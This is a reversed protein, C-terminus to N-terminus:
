DHTKCYDRENVLSPNNWTEFIYGADITLAPFGRLQNFINVKGLGGGVFILDVNKNIKKLDIKDYLSNDKSIKTWTINKVNNAKLSNEIKNKKDSDYSTILHVHKNLYIDKYKKNTLLIYVFYFPYYNKTNIHINNENFFIELKPLYQETYFRPKIITYIAIIGNNSIYKLSESYKKIIEPKINNVDYRGSTYTRSKAEYKKNTLKEFVQKFLHYILKIIPKRFNLENTGLLFQFEGDALRIIPFHTNKKIIKLITLYFDNLLSNCDENQLLFVKRNEVDFNKYDKLSFRYKNKFIKM